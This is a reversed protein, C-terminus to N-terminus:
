REDTHAFVPLDAYPLSPAPSLLPLRGRRDGSGVTLFWYTQIQLYDQQEGILFFIGPMRMKRRLVSQPRGWLAPFATRLTVKETPIQPKRSPPPRSHEWFPALQSLLPHFSQLSSPPLARNQGSGWSLMARFLLISSKQM